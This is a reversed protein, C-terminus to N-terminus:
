FPVYKRKRTTKGHNRLLAQLFYRRERKSYDRRYRALGLPIYPLIKRARGLAQEINCQADLQYRRRGWNLKGSLGKM